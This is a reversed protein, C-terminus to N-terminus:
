PVDANDPSQSDCAALLREVTIAVLVFSIPDEISILVVMKGITKSVWTNVSAAWEILPTDPDNGAYELEFPLPAYGLNTLTNELAFVVTECIISIQSNM